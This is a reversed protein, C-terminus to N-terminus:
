PEGSLGLLSPGSSWGHRALQRDRSLGWRFSPSMFLFGFPISHLYEDLYFYAADLSSVGQSSTVM